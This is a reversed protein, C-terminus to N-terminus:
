QKKLIDIGCKLLEHYVRSLPLGVVNNYDGQIEKVFMACLGQIGYGGAKDFPEKTGIYWQIEQETM